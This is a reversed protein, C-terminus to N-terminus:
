GTSVISIITFLLLFAPIKGSRFIWQFLNTVLNILGDGVNLLCDSSFTFGPDSKGVKLKNLALRSLPSLTM